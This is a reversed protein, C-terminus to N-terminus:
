PATCTTKLIHSLFIHPLHGHSRLGCEEWKVLTMQRARPYVPTFSKSLTTAITTCDLMLMLVQFSATLLIYTSHSLRHCEGATWFQMHAINQKDDLFRFHFGTMNYFDIGKFAGGWWLDEVQIFKLGPFALGHESVDFTNKVPVDVAKKWPGPKASQVPVLRLIVAGKEADATMKKIKGEPDSLYDKAPFPAGGLPVRQGKNDILVSGYLPKIGHEKPAGIIQKPPYVEVSIAFNAVEILAKSAVDSTSEPRPLYVMGEGSWLTGTIQPATPFKLQNRYLTVKPAFEQYYGKVSYGISALDARGKAM